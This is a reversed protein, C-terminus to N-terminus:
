CELKICTHRKSGNQGGWNLNYHIDKSSGMKRVSLGIWVGGGLHEM